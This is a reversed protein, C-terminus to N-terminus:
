RGQEWAVLAKELEFLLDVRPTKLFVGNV